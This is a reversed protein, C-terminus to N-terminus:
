VAFARPKDDDALPVVEGDPSRDPLDDPGPPALEDPLEVGLSLWDPEEPEPLLRLPLPLQDIIVSRIAFLPLAM